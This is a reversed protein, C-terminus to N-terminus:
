KPLLILFSVLGEIIDAKEKLRELREEEEMLRAEELREERERKVREEEAKISALDREERQINM